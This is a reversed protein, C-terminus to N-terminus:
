DSANVRENMRQLTAPAHVRGHTAGAGNHTFQHLKQFLSFHGNPVVRGDCANPHFIPTGFANLQGITFVQRGVNHDAIAVGRPGVAIENLRLVALM